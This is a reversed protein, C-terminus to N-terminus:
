FAKFFRMLLVGITAIALCIWFVVGGELQDTTGGACDSRFHEWGRPNGEPDFAIEIEKLYAHFRNLAKHFGHARICGLVGFIVPFLYTWWDTHKDYLYGWTIGVAIVVNRELARADKQLADVGKRLSEYEKLHFEERSVNASM